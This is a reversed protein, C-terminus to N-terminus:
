GWRQAFEPSAALAAWLGVQRGGRELYAVGAALGAPDAPRGLVALYAGRVTVALAEPSDLVALAVQARSAGSALVQAWHAQESSAAGRHLAVRYVGDVFGAASGGSRQAFEASALLGAQVTRLRGGGSLLATFSALGSPDAPRGLVALYAANVQRGLAQPSFALEDAIASRSVWGNTLATAAAHAAVPPAWPAGLLTQGLAGVLREDAASAPRPPVTSPTSVLPPVPGDAWALLLAASTQGGDPVAAAGAVVFSTAPDGLINERHGWCGPAGASTCSENITNGSGGWGDNYMWDYDAALVSSDLAWNGTYLRIQAGGPLTWSPASPDTDQSAANASASDLVGARGVLGPLGRDVREANVVVLLQQAPSLDRYYSPLQLARVGEQARANDIAAVVASVCASSSAGNDACTQSYDPNPAINAAPNPIPDQQPGAGHDSALRIHPAAARVAARAPAPGAPPPM